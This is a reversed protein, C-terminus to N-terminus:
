AFVFDIERNEVDVGDVIISVKQGLAYVKNTREGIVRYKDPEHIYYDDYLSDLRIMGEITNELEVYIGFGTVGSIVGDFEEGLYQIMYEAKKMKEVERELSVALRETESSHEAAEIALKRYKKLRGGTLEGKLSSKIIRHIM